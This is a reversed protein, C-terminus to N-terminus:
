DKVPKWAWVSAGNVDNTYFAHGVKVAERKFTKTVGNDAVIGGIFMGVLLSIIVGIFTGDSM